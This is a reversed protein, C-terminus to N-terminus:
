RKEGKEAQKVFLLVGILTFITLIASIASAAPWNKAVTLQRVIENGIMKSNKGGILDPIAYSGLAPIFVFITSTVIGSKINPILVKFFAKVKNSGLDLAAEIMSKDIRDISAFLPIIAYPLYTYVIVLIVAFPNYLFQVYHNTVKSIIQNIIGNNGLVFIWAYIRILSNTWFPIVVLLLLFDKLKSNAIFYATPLALLVTFITAILSIWISRWLIKLYSVSFLSKYGDLSFSFNIGGYLSKQMFSFSLVILIPILFFFILWFSYGFTYKM